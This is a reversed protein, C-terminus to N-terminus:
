VRLGADLLDALDLLLLPRLGNVGAMWRARRVKSTKLGKMTVPRAGNTNAV